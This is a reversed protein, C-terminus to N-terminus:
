KRRLVWNCNNAVEPYSAALVVRLWHNGFRGKYIKLLEEPIRKHQEQAKLPMDYFSVVDRYRNNTIIEM